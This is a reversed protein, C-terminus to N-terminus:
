ARERRLRRAAEVMNRLATEVEPWGRTKLGCDPNVWLREIPLVRAAKVLLDYSVTDAVKDSRGAEALDIEFRDISPNTGADPNYRYIAFTKGEHDFRIVDENDIDDIECAKIWASM